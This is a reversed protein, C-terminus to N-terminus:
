RSSNWGDVSATRVDQKQNDHQKRQSLGARCGLEHQLECHLPDKMRPGGKQVEQRLRGLAPTVPMSQCAQSKPKQENIKIKNLIYNCGKGKRRMGLVGRMDRKIKRLNM